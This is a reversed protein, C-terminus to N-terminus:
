LGWFAKRKELLKIIAKAFVWLLWLVVVGGLMVKNEFPSIELVFALLAYYAALLGFIINVVNKLCFITIKKFKNEKKEESM